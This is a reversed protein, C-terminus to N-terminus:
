SIRKSSSDSNQISKREAFYHRWLRNIESRLNLKDLNNEIEEVDLRIIDEMRGYTLVQTLYWKRTWPDALDIKEIKVSWFIYKKCLLSDDKEM